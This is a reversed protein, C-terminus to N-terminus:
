DLKETTTRWEAGKSLSVEAVPHGNKLAAFVSVARYGPSAAVAKAVAAALSVKAMAMAENQKKAASLDEGETIAESEAVKGSGHDVVLESFKGGKETYVSLQLKGDEVEFKASIPKGVSNAAALGGELSVKAATLAKALEAHDQGASEASRVGAVAAFAGFAPVLIQSTWRHM